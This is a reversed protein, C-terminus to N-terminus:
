FVAATPLANISVVVSDTNVCTNTDTATVFYTTIIAPSAMPNSITANSLSGAPTWVYTDAGTAQLQASDGLCISAPLGADVVPLNNVVM